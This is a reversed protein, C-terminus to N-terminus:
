GNADVEVSYKVEAPLVTVGPIAEGTDPDIAKGANVVALKKLEDKKPEEKTRILEPRNEKAWTLFTDAMIEFRPQGLRAKLVGHPLSITKAKPNADLERQHYSRLMEEFREAEKDAKANQEGLWTQIREIQGQALQQAEHQERRIKALKLLCWNAKEMNDVTFPEKDNHAPALIQEIEEALEPM